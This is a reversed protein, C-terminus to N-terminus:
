RGRGPRALSPRHNHNGHAPTAALMRLMFRDFRPHGGLGLRGLSSSRVAGDRALDDEIVRQASAIAPYPCSRSRSGSLSATSTETGSVDDFMGFAVNAHPLAAHYRVWGAPTFQLLWSRSNAPNARREVWGRETLANLRPGLDSSAVGVLRALVARTLQGEIALLSLLAFDGSIVGAEQLSASLYSEMRTRMVFTDFALSIREEAPLQEADNLTMALLQRTQLVAGSLRDLARDIAAREADPCSM